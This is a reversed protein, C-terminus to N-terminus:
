DRVRRFTVLPVFFWAWAAITTIVVTAAIAFPDTIVLSSVLFVVASIAVLFFVTGVIALKTAYLVHGWSKRKIGSIPARVRQHVSPSILLVSALAASAFAVYFVVTNVGSLDAFSAQLPLILLFSFLVMVGPITTRLGELLARFQDDIEEETHELNEADNWESGADPSEM